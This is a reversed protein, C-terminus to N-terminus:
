GKFSKALLYIERSLERSAKPKIHSLKQFQQKLQKEFAEVGAGQFVKMLCHGGPKLVQIALDAALECLYLSRSQDASRIGSMNPAMDSIVLDLGSDPLGQLCNELVNDETFDGQIFEVGEIPDMPLIDVARITVKSHLKRSVYQCWSGPASGLDIISQGPQFLREKNDIEELKFAARSRYGEQQARKVYPDKDQRQKWEQSNKPRGM